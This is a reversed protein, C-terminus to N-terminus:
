LSIMTDMIKTIRKSIQNLHTTLKLGNDFIEEKGLIQRGGGANMVNEKKTRNIM